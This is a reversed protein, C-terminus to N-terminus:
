VKVAKWKKLVREIELAEECVEAAEKRTIVQSWSDTKEIFSAQLYRFIWNSLDCYAKYNYKLPKTFLGNQVM